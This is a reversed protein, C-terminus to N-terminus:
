IYIIYSYICNSPSIYNLISDDNDDGGIKDYETTKTTTINSNKDTNSKTENGDSFGSTGM